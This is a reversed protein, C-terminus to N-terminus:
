NSNNTAYLGGEIDKIISTLLNIESQVGALHERVRHADDYKLTRVVKIQTTLRQQIGFLQMSLYLQHSSVRGVDRVEKVYLITESYGGRM